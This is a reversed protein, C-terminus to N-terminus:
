DAPRIKLNDFYVDAEWNNIAVFEHGKGALPEPDNWALFPQGDVQWDIAGGKRTIKWHYTRGPEVRPERRTVKVGEDHENLRAITSITNRWGGFIAMYGSPQYQNGDPDFTEGDGCFEIKLDGDQSKSMVDIEVVFDRPLRRRLWLPHNHAGAINLKGGSVKYEAGTNHWATGVEIREFDDSFPETIAQVQAKCAAFGLCGFLLASPAPVFSSM